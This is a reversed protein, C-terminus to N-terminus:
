RIEAEESRRQDAETSESRGAKAGAVTDDALVIWDSKRPSRLMDLRPGAVNKVSLISPWLTRAM